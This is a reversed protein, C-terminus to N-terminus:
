SIFVTKSLVEESFWPFVDVEESIRGVNTLLFIQQDVGNETFVYSLPDLDQKTKLSSVQLKM